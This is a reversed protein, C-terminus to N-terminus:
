GIRAQRIDDQRRRTGDSGHDNCQPQSRDTDTEHDRRDSPRVPSPGPRASGRARETAAAAHDDFFLARVDSDAGNRHRPRTRDPAVIAADVRAATNASQDLGPQERRTDSVAATRAGPHGVQLRSPDGGNGAAKADDSRVPLARSAPAHPTDKALPEAPTAVPANATGTPLPEPSSTAVAVSDSRCRSARAQKAVVRLFSAPPTPLCRGDEDHWEFVWPAKSHLWIWTPGLGLRKIAPPLPLSLWLEALERANGASLDAWRHCPAPRLYRLLRRWRTERKLNGFVHRDAPRNMDLRWTM